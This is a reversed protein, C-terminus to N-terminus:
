LDGERLALRRDVEAEAREVQLQALALREAWEGADFGPISNELKWFAPLVDTERGDPCRVALAEVEFAAPVPPEDHGGRIPAYYRGRIVLAHGLHLPVRVEDLPAPEPLYSVEPAPASM